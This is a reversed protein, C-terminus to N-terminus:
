LVRFSVQKMRRQPSGSPSSTKVKISVESFCLFLGKGQKRSPASQLVIHCLGGFCLVTTQGLSSYLWLCLSESRSLLVVNMCPQPRVLFNLTYVSVVECFTRHPTSRSICLSGASSLALHHVIGGHACLSSGPRRRRRCRWRWRHSLQSLEVPHM